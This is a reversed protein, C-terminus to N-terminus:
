VNGSVDLAGVWSAGYQQSGVPVTSGSSNQSHIFPDGPAQPNSPRSNGWPYILGDSGRAVYEWEAETPLRAGRALCFDRAEFWDIQEDNERARLMQSSLLALTPQEGDRVPFKRWVMKKRACRVLNAKSIGGVRGSIPSKLVEWIRM